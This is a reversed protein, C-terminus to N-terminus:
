EASRAERLSRLPPLTPQRRCGRLSSNFVNFEYKATKADESQARQALISQTM